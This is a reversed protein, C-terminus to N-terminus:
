MANILPFAYLVRCKYLLYLKPSNSFIKTQRLSQFKMEDMMEIESTPGNNTTICYFVQFMLFNQIKFSQSNTVYVLYRLSFGRTQVSTRRWIVLDPPIFSFVPLKRIVYCHPSRILRYTNYVRLIHKYDQTVLMCNAHAM